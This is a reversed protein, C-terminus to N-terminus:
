PGTLPIQYGFKLLFYRVVLMFCLTIVPAAVMARVPRQNRMLFAFGFSLLLWAFVGFLWAFKIFPFLYVTEGQVVKFAAYFSHSYQPFFFVSTSTSSPLGLVIVFIFGLTGIFVWSLPVLSAYLLLRGTSANTKTSM